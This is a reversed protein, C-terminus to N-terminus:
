LLVESLDLVREPMVLREVWEAPIGEVGRLARSWGAPVEAVPGTFDEGRYARLLLRALLDCGDVCEAAGHTTRSSERIYGLGEGELGRVAGWAVVPALRMVGGNGAASPETSGAIPDGTREFRALAERTTIGIDFCSGTSSLHGERWWRVYREMQDRPDFGAVGRGQRVGEVLSEALCLAMSSDDTWAGAPLGFPGGGVMDTIPTFSGPAKFENTTGVADGVVLGVVSGIRRSAPTTSTDARERDTM